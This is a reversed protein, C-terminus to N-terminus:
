DWVSYREGNMQVTLYKEGNRSKNEWIQEITGKM